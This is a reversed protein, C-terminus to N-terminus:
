VHIRTNQDFGDASSQHSFSGAYDLVRVLRNLKVQAQMIKVAKQKAALMEDKKELEAKLAATEEEAKRLRSELLRRKRNRWLFGGDSGAGSCEADSEARRESGSQSTGSFAVSFYM